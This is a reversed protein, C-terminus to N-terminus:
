LFHIFLMIVIHGFNRFTHYVARQVMYCDLNIGHFLGLLMDAFQSMFTVLIEPVESVYLSRSKYRLLTYEGIYQNDKEM